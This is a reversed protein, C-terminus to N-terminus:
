GLALIAIYPLNRYKQGYDLGYGVVFADPITFGVYHVEVEVKRRSPKDLLACIKLSAPNRARLRHCLYALTLGTDVIDEIVLVDRGETACSLDYDFKIVGSSTTKDGYSSVGVFETVLPLDIQRSLDAWFITAGKLLCVLVLDKDKYNSTIIRALEGVRLAIEVPSLLVEGIRSESAKM